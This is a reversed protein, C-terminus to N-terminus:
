LLLMLLLSDKWVGPSCLANRTEEWLLVSSRRRIYNELFFQMCLLRLSSLSYTTLKTRNAFGRSFKWNWVCCLSGLFFCRWKKIHRQSNTKANKIINLFFIFFFWYENFKRKKCCFLTIIFSFSSRSIAANFGYSQNNCPLPSLVRTSASLNNDTSCSCRM